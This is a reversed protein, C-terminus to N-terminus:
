SSIYDGITVASLLQVLTEYSLPRSLVPRSLLPVYSVVSQYNVKDVVLGVLMAGLCSRGLITKYSAPRSLYWGYGLAVGLNHTTGIKVM